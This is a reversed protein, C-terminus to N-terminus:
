DVVIKEAHVEVEISSMSTSSMMRYVVERDSHGGLEHLYSEAVM